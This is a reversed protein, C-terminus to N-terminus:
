LIIPTALFQSFNRFLLYLNRTTTAAFSAFNKGISAPPPRPRSMLKSILSQLIIAQFQATRVNRQYLGPKNERSVNSKGTHQDIAVGLSVDCHLTDFM